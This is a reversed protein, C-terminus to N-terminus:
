VGPPAIPGKCGLVSYDSKLHDKMKQYTTTDKGELDALAMHLSVDAYAVRISKCKSRIAIPDNPNVYVSDDIAPPATPDGDIDESDVALAGGAGLLLGFATAAIIAALRLRAFRTM